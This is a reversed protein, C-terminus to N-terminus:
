NTLDGYISAVHMVEFYEQWEEPLVSECIVTSKETLQGVPYLRIKGFKTYDVIHFVQLSNEIMARRIACQMEDSDTLGSDMSIGSCSIFAKTAKFSSIARVTDMGTYCFLNRDFRGGLVIVDVQSETQILNAIAVSNTIVTIDKFDLLRQALYYSTSSCDLFIIDASKILPVCKEAICRKAAKKAGCRLEFPVSTRVHSELSIAGGFTRKIKGNKELIVLDRRISEESVDFFGSLEQISVSTCHRVYDLIKDRRENATMKREQRLQLNM